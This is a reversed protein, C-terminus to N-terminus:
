LYVIYHFGLNLWHHKNTTVLEDMKFEIELFIVVINLITFM